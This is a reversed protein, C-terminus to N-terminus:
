SSQLSTQRRERDKRFFIDTGMDDGGQFVKGEASFVALPARPRKLQKVNRQVRLGVVNVDVAVDEEQAVERKGGGVDVKHRHVRVRVDVRESEGIPERWGSEEREHITEVSAKEEDALSREVKIQDFAEEMGGLFVPPGKKGFLGGPGNHSGIGGGAVEARALDRKRVHHKVSLPAEFPSRNCHVEDPTSPVQHGVHLAGYVLPRLVLRWDLQRDIRAM